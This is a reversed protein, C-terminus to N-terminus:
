LTHAAVQCVTDSKCFNVQNCAPWNPDSINALCTEIGGPPSTVFGDRYGDIAFFDATGKIMEKQSDNFRPLITEDLDAKILDPWDGTNYIPEAFIGISYAQHREQAQQDTSNDAQWPVGAFNDSKFALQGCIGLEKFRRYTKAHALTLHYSCTFPYVTSNLNGPLTSQAVDAAACKYYKRSVNVPAAMQWPDAM